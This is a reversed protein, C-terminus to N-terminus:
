GTGAGNEIGSYMAYAPFIKTFLGIAQNSFLVMVMAVTSAVIVKKQTWQVKHIIYFVIGVIATSHIFVTLIYMIFFVKDNGKLLYSTAFFLMSVAIYQRSINMSYFYFYLTVYLMSPIFVYQSFNVIAAEVLIAILLSDVIILIRPNPFIRYLVSNYLEYLPYKSTTVVELFSKGSVGIERFISLYQGTDSGVTVGRVASMGGFVLIFPLTLIGNSTLKLGSKILSFVIFLLVYLFIAGFYTIVDFGWNV